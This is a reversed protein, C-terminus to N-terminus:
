KRKKFKIPKLSVILDYKGCMSRFRREQYTKNEIRYCVPCYYPKKVTKMTALTPSSGVHM